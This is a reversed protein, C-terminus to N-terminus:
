RPTDITYLKFVLVVVWWWIEAGKQVPRIRVHSVTSLVWYYGTEWSNEPQQGDSAPLGRPPNRGPRWQGPRGSGDAGTPPVQGLGLDLVPPVPLTGPQHGPPLLPLFKDGASLPCQLVHGPETEETQYRWVGHHARLRIMLQDRTVPRVWCSFGPSLWDSTGYWWLGWWRYIIRVKVSSPYM